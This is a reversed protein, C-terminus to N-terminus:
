SEDDVFHRLVNAVSIVYETLAESLEGRSAAVAARSLVKVAEDMTLSALPPPDQKPSPAPPPYRRFFEAKAERLKLGEDNM